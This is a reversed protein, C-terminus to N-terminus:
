GGLRELRDLFRLGVARYSFHTRIRQRARAGIARAESPDDLLQEILAAAHEVSPDAWVQGEGFPYAGPAVPILQQDVLLGTDATMFDLNGSYATAISPRGLFMAEAMGRGFGESRHLSVFVDCARILNKIENDSLDGDIVQVRSGLAAVRAEFAARAPENAARGRSKIVCHLRAEPRRAAVREYADLVATPNKREAYSSFDFSFLVVFADEPIGFRRRGLFSSLKLEVPLPIDFVPRQLAEALADRVFVSPAWAEDFQALVRTWEAPYRSLEWAPYVINRARAFADRGLRDIVRQAEDGNVCFLNLEGLSETLSGAFDRELDADPPAPFDAVDVLRPDLGVARMARVTSRLHEGMGIPLFPYGVVTVQPLSM